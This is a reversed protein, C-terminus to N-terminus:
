KGREMYERCGPWGKRINSAQGRTVREPWRWCKFHLKTWPPSSPLSELPAGFACTGCRPGTKPFDTREADPHLRVGDRVLTSIPHMGISTLWRAVVVRPLRPRNGPQTTHEFLPLQEM